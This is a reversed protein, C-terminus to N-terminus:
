VEGDAAGSDFIELKADALKHGLKVHTAIKNVSIAVAHDSGLGHDDSEEKHDSCLPCYAIGYVRGDENEVATPIRYGDIKYIKKKV